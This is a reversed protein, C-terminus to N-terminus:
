AELLKVLYMRITGEDAIAGSKRVGIVHGVFGSVEDITQERAVFIQGLVSPHMAGEVSRGSKPSKWQALAAKAVPVLRPNVIARDHGRLFAVLADGELSAGADNFTVRPHRALLETRLVANKSFSRSCVAVRITTM